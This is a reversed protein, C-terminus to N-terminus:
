LLDKTISPHLEEFANQKLLQQIEIESLSRIIHITSFLNLDIEHFSGLDMTKLDYIIRVRPRSPSDKKVELVLALTSTNLEVISGPPYVAVNAILADVMRPQLHTGSMNKLIENAQEFTFPEHYPRDSMLADYVDAVAVVRAYEHIDNLSLKRPYGKGDWREHHQFAIHASLLSIDSYHRLTEFGYSPHNRMITFEEDNLKGKKNLISHDIDTKGIDHLLAGVGLEQLQMENYSLTLGIILALVCVNVSHQFTIDDFANIEALGILVDRSSMIDDVLTNVTNKIQATNIQRNNELNQFSEKITKVAQARKKESVIEPIDVPGLKEEQIYVSHINLEQLRRIYRESLNTGVGLLIRGDSNHINRALTMNSQLLKTSVRRM